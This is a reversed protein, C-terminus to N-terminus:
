FHKNRKTKYKPGNFLEGRLYMTMEKNTTNMEFYICNDQNTLYFQRVMTPNRRLQGM